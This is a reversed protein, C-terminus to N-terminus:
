GITITGPEYRVKVRENGSTFQPPGSVSPPSLVSSVTRYPIEVQTQGSGVIIDGRSTTMPSAPQIRVTYSDLGSEPPEFYATGGGLGQSTVALKDASILMASVEHGVEELQAETSSTSQDLAGQLVIFILAIFVVAIGMNLIFGISISAGGDSRDCNM